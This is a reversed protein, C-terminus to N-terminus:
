TKGHLDAGSPEPQGRPTWADCSAVGLFQGPVPAGSNERSVDKPPASKITTRAGTAPHAFALAAAHLLHHPGFPGDLPRDPGYTADGVIPHGISALQCRIQHTVGTAITVELLTRGGDVRLPKYFTEAFLAREGKPLSASAVCRMRGRFSSCHALWGSVGGAKAVEGHVVALYTKDVTRATFQRRIAEFAAQTRACLVIGSTGSDIRHLLGPMAPDDGVGAMEPFRAALANALTGTEGPEVPHCPQGGPKDIALVADDALLIRLEGAQPLPARDARELLRPLTVVGGRRPRDSKAAPRDDLLVGGEAFAANVLARSSTPFRGLIAKDLRGPREDAEDITFAINQIM